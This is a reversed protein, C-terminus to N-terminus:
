FWSSRDPVRRLTVGGTSATEGRASEGKSDLTTCRADVGSGAMMFPYRGKLTRELAQRTAQNWKAM